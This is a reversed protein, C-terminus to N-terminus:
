NRRTGSFALVYMRLSTQPGLSRENRCYEISLRRTGPRQKGERDGEEGKKKMRGLNEELRGKQTYRMKM